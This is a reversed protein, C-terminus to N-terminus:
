FFVWRDVHTKKAALSSKAIATAIYIDVAIAPSVKGWPTTSVPDLGCSGLWGTGKRHCGSNNKPEKNEHLLRVCFPKRVLNVGGWLHARGRTGGDQFVRGSIPTTKKARKFWYPTKPNLQQARQTWHQCTIKRRQINRETVNSFNIHKESHNSQNKQFHEFDM